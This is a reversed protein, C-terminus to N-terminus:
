KIKATREELLPLPPLDHSPRDLYFYAAACYDDQRYFNVWGKPADVDALKPGKEDMLNFRKGAEDVTVPLMPVGRKLLERAHEMGTGGLAQITVRAERGFYVPDPLHFRYLSWQRKDGDAVPCGQYRQAFKGLGWGTGVYDEAGTGALTPHATDGDLYMKVEGEGWWAKDYDANAIVGVNAGLFRGRGRVRPLIEFDEGVKTKLQRSWYCHFFLADAPLTKVTEFDVDYFLHSLNKDSHNTLVIKAHRKFPMPVVCNFSRGEPSSFLASEFACIQGHSVSFFDGLPTLVAPTAAGDWYISLTLSRLMEPSRDSITMWIRRIIGCGQFNMLEVSQGAKLSDFAHGKAGHNERGAAGKAAVPNEFSAWRPARDSEFRWLEQGLLPLSCVALLCSWFVVTKM